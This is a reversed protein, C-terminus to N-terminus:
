SLSHPSESVGTGSSDKVRKQCVPSRSVQQPSSATSASLLREQSVKAVHICRFLELKSELLQFNSKCKRCIYPSLQDDQSLDM